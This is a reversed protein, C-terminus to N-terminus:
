FFEGMNGATAGQGPVASLHLAEGATRLMNQHQYTGAGQYAPKGVTSVVVTAIHGGGNTVDAINGEDFVIFLLTNAMAPSAILPGINKQLWADAPALRAADACTAAGGPCDHADDRSNPVVFAFNPLANAALDAGFQTFPVMNAAEAPNGAVDSFYSFPNHHQIYFGTDGGLYGPSPLDELYAKWTKGDKAFQRALNDNQVTGQFNDDTVALTGTTMMMYNGISPHINGYYQTALGYKSALGNLYPMASSGIVDSFSANEEVVVVVHAFQPVTGTSGSTPITGNALGNGGGGCSSGLVALATLVIPLLVLRLPLCYFKPFRRPDSICIM